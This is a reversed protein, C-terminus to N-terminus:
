LSLDNLDQCASTMKLREEPLCHFFGVIWVGKCSCLASKGLVKLGNPRWYILICESVSWYTFLILSLLLNVITDIMLVLYGHATLVDDRSFFSIFLFLFIM